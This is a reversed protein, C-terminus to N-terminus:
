FVEAVTPVDEVQGDDDGADHVEPELAHVPDWYEPPHPQYTWEEWRSFSKKDGGGLFLASSNKTTTPKMEFIDEQSFFLFADNYM